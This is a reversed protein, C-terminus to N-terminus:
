APSVQVFRARNQLEKLNKAGIYSMASRLGGTIDYVPHIVSGRAPVETAVGEATRHEGTLIGNDKMYSLYHYKLLHVDSLLLHQSQLELLLILSGDQRHYLLLDEFRSTM